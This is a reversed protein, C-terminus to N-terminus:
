TRKYHFAIRGREAFLGAPGSCAMINSNLSSIRTRGRRVVPEQALGGSSRPGWLARLSWTYPQMVYLQSGAGRREFELVPPKRRSSSLRRSSPRSSMSRARSSSTPSPTHRCTPGRAFSSSPFSARPPPSSALTRRRPTSPALASSPTRKSDLSTRTTQLYVAMILVCQGTLLRSSAGKIEAVQMREGREDKGTFILGKAEIRDVYAPNVEYRHRHREWIAEAGGYLQRVQSWETNPQFITPRLGLRMTGGLHTKSIEPM